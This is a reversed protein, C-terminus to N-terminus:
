RIEVMQLSLNRFAGKELVSLKFNGFTTAFYSLREIGLKRLSIMLSMEFMKNEYSLVIIPEMQFYVLGEM